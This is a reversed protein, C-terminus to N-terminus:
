FYVKRVTRVSKLTAKLSYPREFESALKRWDEGLVEIRDLDIEGLGMEHGKALYKVELPDYGMIRSCVADTSVPNTGAVIIGLERPTGIIPGNGEMAVIGDVVVLDNRVVKTLYPLIENLRTHLQSKKRRAPLGFLNKISLTVGVHGETKIKPLNIFCDAELATRPLRLKKGAVEHVECEDGSLNLFEVGLGDLLELLGSKEARADATDSINDSEVVVIRDTRERVLGIVAEIVRFDTTVMGDPNKANCLNPKIVVREGGSLPLGGLLEVGRAVAWPVDDGVEVIAVRDAM